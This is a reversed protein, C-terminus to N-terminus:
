DITHYTARVGCGKYFVDKLMALVITWSGGALGCGIQPLAVEKIGEKRAFERLHEFCTYVAEYDVKRSETGFYNQTMCNAVYRTGEDNIAVFQVTGLELGNQLHEDMYRGYANPYRKRMLGAVGSGYAGQCNCGHAIIGADSKFLDGREHWVSM